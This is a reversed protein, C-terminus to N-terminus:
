ASATQASATCLILTLSIFTHADAEYEVAFVSSSCTLGTAWLIVANSCNSVALILRGTNIGVNKGFTVTVVIPYPSLTGCVQIPFVMADHKETNAMEKKARGATLPFLFLQVLADKLSLHRM